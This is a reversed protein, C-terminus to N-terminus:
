AESDGSRLITQLEDPSYELSLTGDLEVICFMDILPKGNLFNVQRYASVIALKPQMYSRFVRVLIINHEEANHHAVYSAVANVKLDAWFAQWRQEFYSTISNLELRSTGCPHIERRLEHEDEQSFASASWCLAICVLFIKLWNM